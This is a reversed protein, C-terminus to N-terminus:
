KVVNADFAKKLTNRKSDINNLFNRYACVREKHPLDAFQAYSLESSGYRISANGCQKERIDKPIETLALTQICFHDKLSSDINESLGKNFSRGETDSRNLFNVANDKYLGFFKSFAEIQAGSLAIANKADNQREYPKKLEYVGELFDNYQMYILDHIDQKNAVTGAVKQNQHKAVAQTIRAMDEKFGHSHDLLRTVKAYLDKTKKEPIDTTASDIERGLAVIEDIQTRLTNLKLLRGRSMKFDDPISDFFDQINELHKLSSPQGVDNTLFAMTFNSIQDDTALVRFKQLIASKYTESRSKIIELREPSTFSEYMKLAEPIEKIIDEGALAAVMNKRVANELKGAGTGGSETQLDNARKLRPSANIAAAFKQYLDNYEAESYILNLFGKEQEATSMGSRIETISAEGLSMGTAPYGFIKTGFIYTTTYLNTRDEKRRAEASMSRDSSKASEKVTSLGAEFAATASMFTSNVKLTRAQEETYSIKSGLNRTMEDVAQSSSKGKEMISLLRRMEPSCKDDKCPGASLQQLLAEQRVLRCHQNGLQELTCSLGTVLMSQNSAEFDVRKDDNNADRIDFINQILRGALTIGIGAPSSAFFGSIGLIGTVIQRRLVPHKKYCESNKRLSAAMENALSDLQSIGDIYRKRDRAGSEVKNSVRLRILETRASSVMAQLTSEDPFLARNPHGQPITKVYALDALAEEIILETKKIDETAGYNDIQQLVADLKPLQGIVALEAQCEKEKDSIKELSSRLNALSTRVSQTASGSMSDCRFSELLINGASNSMNAFSNTGLSFSLFVVLYAANTPLSLCKITMM